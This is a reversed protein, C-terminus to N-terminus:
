GRENNASLAHPHVRGTKLHLSKEKPFPWYIHVPLIFPIPLLLFLYNLMIVRKQINKWGELLRIKIKGPGEPFLSRRSKWVLDPTPTYALCTPSPFKWMGPRTQMCNVNSHSIQMVNMHFSAEINIVNEPITAFSPADFRSRTRNREPQRAFLLHKVHWAAVSWQHHNWVIVNTAM